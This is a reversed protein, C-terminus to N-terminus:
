NLKRCFNKRRVNPFNDLKNLLGLKDLFPTYLDIGEKVKAIAQEAGGIWRFTITKNVIDAYEQNNLAKDTAETLRKVIHDPTGKKVAIGGNIWTGVNKGPFAESVTRVGPLDREFYTERKSDLIVLPRVKDGFSKGSILQGVAVDVNGSVLANMSAPVTKLSVMSFELDFQESLQVAALHPPAGVNNVGIKLKRKKAAEVFEEFSKIPSDGSVYLATSATVEVTLPLVNELPNYPVTCVLPVIVMPAASWRLLTYGDAPKKLVNMVGRIHRDGPMNVVNVPVGLEDGLRKAAARSIIDANGGPAFTVVMTLPKSPFNDQAYAAGGLVLLAMALLLRASNCRRLLM